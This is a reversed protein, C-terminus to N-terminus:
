TLACTWVTTVFCRMGFTTSAFSRCAPGAAASRLSHDCLTATSMDVQPFGHINKAALRNLLTTKGVGNQGIVGYRHGREFCIDAQAMPEPSDTPEM